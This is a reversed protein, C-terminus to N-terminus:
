MTENDTEYVSIGDSDDCTERAKVGEKEEDSCAKEFAKDERIDPQEALNEIIASEPISEVM